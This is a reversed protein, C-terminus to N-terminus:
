LHHDIHPKLQGETNPTWEQSLAVADKIIKIMVDAKELVNVLANIFGNIRDGHEPNDDNPYLVLPFCGGSRDIIIVGKDKIPDEMEFPYMELFSKEYFPQTSELSHKMKKLLEELETNDSKQGIKILNYLAHCIVLRYCIPYKGTLANKNTVILYDRKM